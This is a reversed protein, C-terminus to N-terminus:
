SAQVPGSKEEVVECEMPFNKQAWIGFCIMCYNFSHEKLASGEEQFAINLTTWTGRVNFTHGKECTYKRVPVPAPKDMYNEKREEAREISGKAAALAAIALELASLAAAYDARASALQTTLAANETRLRDIDANKAVLRDRMESEIM